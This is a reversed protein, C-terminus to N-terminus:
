YFKLNKSKETSYDKDFNANLIDQTLKLERVVPAKELRKLRMNLVEYNNLDSGLLSQLQKWTKGILQHHKFEMFTLEVCGNRAELVIVDKAPITCVKEILTKVNKIIKKNLEVGLTEFLEIKEVILEILYVKPMENLFGNLIFDAHNKSTKDLKESSIILEIDHYKLYDKLSTFFAESSSMERENSLINEFFLKSYINEDFTAKECSRIKTVFNIVTLHLPNVQETKIETTEFLYKKLTWNVDCTPRFTMYVCSFNANTFCRELVLNANGVDNEMLVNLNRDLLYYKCSRYLLLVLSKIYALHSLVNESSLNKLFIEKRINKEHNNM